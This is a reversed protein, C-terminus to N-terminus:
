LCWVGIVGSEAAKSQLVCTFIINVLKEGGVKAMWWGGEVRWWRGEVRSWGGEAGDLRQVGAWVQHLALALDHPLGATQTHHRHRGVHGPPSRVNEEASVGGDHRPDPHSIGQGLLQEIAFVERSNWLHPRSLFPKARARARVNACARM